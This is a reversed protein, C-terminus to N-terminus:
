PPSDKSSTIMHLPAEHMSHPIDTTVFDKLNHALSPWRCSLQLLSGSLSLVSLSCECSKVHPVPIRFACVEPARLWPDCKSSTTISPKTRSDNTFENQSFVRIISSRVFNQVRHSMCMRCAVGRRSTFRVPSSRCRSRVDVKWPREGSTEADLHYPLRVCLSLVDFPSVTLHWTSRLASRQTAIQEADSSGM